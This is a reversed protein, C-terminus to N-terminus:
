PSTGKRRLVSMGAWGEHDVYVLEYYDKLRPLYEDIVPRYDIIYDFRSDVIYEIIRGKQLARLADVNVKGDLNTADCYYGLFGSQFAAVSKEPEVNKRTWLVFKYRKEPEYRDKYTKVYYMGSVASFVLLTGALALSRRRVDLKSLLVASALAAGVCVPINLPFLYRRMFLTSHVAFIYFIVLCISFPVFVGLYRISSDRGLEAVNSRLVGAHKRLFWLLGLVVVVRCATELAPGSRLSIPISYFPLLPLDALAEAIAVVNELPKFHLSQATYSIPFVSGLKVYNFILWPSGVAVSLAGLGFCAYLSQASLRNKFLHFALLCGIFLSADLRALFTLGLLVGTSCFLVKRALTGAPQRDWAMYSILTLMIFGAYICTELGNMDMKFVKASTAWFFAALWPALPFDDRRKGLLARTLWFICATCLASLVLQLMETAFIGLVKDEGVVWYASSFIVTSLPQVGNSPKVGDITWGHGLAINRAITQTYYGDESMSLNELVYTDGFLPLARLVYSALILGLLAPVLWKIKDNM